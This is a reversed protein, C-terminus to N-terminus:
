VGKRDMEGYRNGERNLINYGSEYVYTRKQSYLLLIVIHIVSFVM